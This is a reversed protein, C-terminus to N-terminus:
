AQLYARKWPCTDGKRREPPLRPLLSSDGFHIAQHTDPSTCVLNDPDFVCERNRELDEITIPNLHHITPRIFIERDLIGLDCGSDRLLIGERSIKWERSQYLTQNLYRDFGFTSRGVTGGMRLYEFREEFSSLRCLERYSKIM